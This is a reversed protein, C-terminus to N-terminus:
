IIKVQGSKEITDTKKTTIKLDKMSLDELSKLQDEMSSVEDEREKTIMPNKAEIYSALLNNFGNLSAQDTRDLLTARYMLAVELSKIAEEQKLAKLLIYEKSTNKIGNVDIGRLM